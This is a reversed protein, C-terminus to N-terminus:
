CASALRFGPASLPEPEASIMPRIMRMVTTMVRRREIVETLQLGHKWMALLITSGPLYSYRRAISIHGVRL